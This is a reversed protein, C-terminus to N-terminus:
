RYIVRDSSTELFELRCSSGPLSGSRWKAESGAIEIKLTSSTSGDAKGGIGCPVHVCVTTGFSAPSRDLEASLWVSTCVSPAVFRVSFRRPDNAASALLLLTAPLSSSPLREDALPSPEELTVSISIPIPPPEATRSAIMPNEYANARERAQVSALECAQLKAHECSRMSGHEWAGMSGHKWAEM